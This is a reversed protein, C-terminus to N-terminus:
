GVKSYNENLIDSVFSQINRGYDTLMVHSPKEPDRKLVCRKKGIRIAQRVEKRSFENSLLYSAGFISKGNAPLRAVLIATARNHNVLDRALERLDSERLINLSRWAENVKVERGNPNRAHWFEAFSIVSM